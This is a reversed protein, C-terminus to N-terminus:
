GNTLGDDWELKGLINQLMTEVKALGAEMKIARAQM